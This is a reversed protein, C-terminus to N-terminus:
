HGIPLLHHESVVKTGFFIFTHEIQTVWTTKPNMCPTSIEWSSEFDYSVNVEKVEDMTKFKM